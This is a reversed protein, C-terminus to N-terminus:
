HPRFNRTLYNLLVPFDEDSLAAGEGIMHVLLDEWDERTGGHETVRSREHCLTCVELLIRKGAGEPLPGHYDGLYEALVPIDDPQVEAGKEIMSNVLKTWGEANLAQTQIKRYEHCSMCSNNMIIEGKPMEQPPSASRGASLAAGASCVTISFWALLKVPRWNMVSREGENKRAASNYEPVLHKLSACKSQGAPLEEVSSQQQRGKPRHSLRRGPSDFVKIKALHFRKNPRAAERQGRTKCPNGRVAKACDPRLPRLAAIQLNTSPQLPTFFIRQCIKNQEAVGEGAL